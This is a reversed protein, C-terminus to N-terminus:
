KFVDFLIDLSINELNDKIMFIWSNDFGKEPFPYLFGCPGIQQENGRTSKALSRWKGLSKKSEEHLAQSPNKHNQYNKIKPNIKLTDHLKLWNIKM